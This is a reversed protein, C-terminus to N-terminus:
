GYSLTDTAYFWCGCNHAYLICSTWTSGASKHSSFTNCIIWVSLYLPLRNRHCLHLICYGTGINRNVLENNDIWCSWKFKQIITRWLVLVQKCHKLETKFYPTYLNSSQQFLYRRITNHLKADYQGVAFLRSSYKNLVEFLIRKWCHGPFWSKQLCKRNKWSWM